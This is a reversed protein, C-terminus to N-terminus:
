SQRTYYQVNAPQSVLSWYSVQPTPKLQLKDVGFLRMMLGIPSVVVFFFIRILVANVLNGMIWSVAMWPWYVLLAPYSGTLGLGGVVVAIWGCSIAAHHNGFGFRLLLGILGFGILMVWGFERLKKPAPRWEIKLLSM